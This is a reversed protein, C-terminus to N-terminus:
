IGNQVEMIRFDTGLENVYRVLAQELTENERQVEEKFRQLDAMTELGIKKFLEKM